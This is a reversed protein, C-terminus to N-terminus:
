ATEAASIIPQPRDDFVLKRKVVAAVVYAVGPENADTEEAGANEDVLEMRGNGSSDFKTKRELVVLPQQLQVVAGTVRHSGVQLTATKGDAQMAIHGMLVGGFRAGGAASAAAASPRPALLSGGADAEAASRSSTGGASASPAPAVKGQLELLVWEKVERGSGGADPCTM